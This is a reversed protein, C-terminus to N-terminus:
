RNKGNRSHLERKRQNVLGVLRYRAVPIEMLHREFTRAPMELVRAPAAAQVSASRLDQEILGMEGFAYGPGFCGMSRSDGNHRIVEVQGETVIYFHGAPEGQRVIEEDTQFELERCEDALQVLTDLGLETGVVQRWWTRTRYLKQLRSRLGTDVLLAQYLAEPIHLLRTWRATPVLNPEAIAPLLTPHFLDGRQLVLREQGEDRLSVSGALVVLAGTAREEEEERPLFVDGGQLLAAKWREPLDQLVPSSFVAMTEDTTREERPILNVTIGPEANPLFKRAAESVHTVLFRSESNRALLEVVEQPDPHIPGGGADAVIVDADDYTRQIFDYRAQTLIKQELLPNLQQGWLTDGPMRIRKGDMSIDLGVTPITHVSYWSRIQAGFWDLPEGFGELGPHLPVWDFLRSVEKGPLNLIAALRGVLGAMVPGSTLLKVRRRSLLQGLMNAHDEHTHTVLYGLIHDDEIGLRRLHEDLYPTGDVVLPQGNIWVLFCSSWEAASFGSASGIVQLAFRAGVVPADVEAFYFPLSGRGDPGRSLTVSEGESRIRLQNGPLSEIVTGDRLQACGDTFPLVQVMRDLDLQAVIGAVATTEIRLQRRHEEPTRWHAMEEDSPGRLMEHVLSHVRPAQGPDCVITFPVGDRLGNMLFMHNYLLFEISAQNVGFAFLPDAPLVVTSPFPYEWLMLVKLAEPPAGVMVAKGSPLPVLQASDIVPIAEM